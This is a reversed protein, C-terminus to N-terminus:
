MHSWVLPSDFKLVKMSSMHYRCSGLFQLAGLLTLHMMCSFMFEKKNISCFLCIPVKSLFPQLVTVVTVLEPDLGIEEKAERTTTATDDADGEEAKGGPM